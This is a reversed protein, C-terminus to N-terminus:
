FKYYISAKDNGGVSPTPLPGQLILPLIPNELQSVTHTPTFGNLKINSRICPPYGTTIKTGHTNIRLEQKLSCFSVPIIGTFQNRSLSLKQLQKLTSFSDPLSGSLANDSLKLHKLKSLTSMGTPIIGTLAVKHIQINVLNTLESITQPIVGVLDTYSISLSTLSTLYGLTSPITGELNYLKKISFNVIDAGDRTSVCDIHFGEDWSHDCINPSPFSPKGNNDCEFGYQFEANTASILDCM